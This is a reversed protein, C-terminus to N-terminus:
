AAAEAAATIDTLGVGLVRAVAELEVLDFPSNGSLRRRLTSLPIETQAALFRESLELRELRTRVEAAVGRSIDTAQAM